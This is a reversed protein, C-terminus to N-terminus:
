RALPKDLGPPYKKWPDDQGARFGYDFLAVMFPTEFEEKKNEYKFDSGIWTVNFDLGDQQSTLYIRYLDGLGQTQILSDIARGAISITRREVEAWTPALAANRIVYVTGARDMAPAGMAAVTRKLSPPYLFVQASAGGDVHMEEYKKGDLEVQVMSPPFAGPIAASALLISRFLDLARPSGNTAIAGMNWIVPQRADLDTTGILLLRGKAYEAAIKRLLEDDVHKSILAWLPRNDAMGDNSVAALFWRHRAIDTPAVSTYVTKLVHDYDPGLFAFPAILAGTSVGTVVKFVPRTGRATWGCLLGAGYAGKDGGGSVALLDVPPLPGTHGSQELFTQERERAAVVDRIMPELDQLVFYRAGPIGPIVASTTRDFPVPPLRRPPQFAWPLLLWGSVAVAALVLGVVVLKRM